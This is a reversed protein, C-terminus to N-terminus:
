KNTVKFRERFEKQKQQKLEEKSPQNAKDKHYDFYAKKMEFMVRGAKNGWLKFPLLLVAAHDENLPMGDKHQEAVIDYLRIITPYDGKNLYYNFAEVDFSDVSDQLRKPLRQM